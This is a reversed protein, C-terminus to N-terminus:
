TVVTSNPPVETEWLLLTSLQVKALLLRGDNGPLLIFDRCPVQDMTAPNIFSLRDALVNYRLIRGETDLTRFFLSESILVTPKINLVVASNTTAAKTWTNSDQRYCFASTLGAATDVAIFVVLFSGSCECRLHDCRADGCLVTASCLLLGRNRPGEHELALGQHSGVRR